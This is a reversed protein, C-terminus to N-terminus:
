AAAHFSVGQLSFRITRHMQWPLRVAIGSSAAFDDPRVVAAFASLFLGFTLAPILGPWGSLLVVLFLRHGFLKLM